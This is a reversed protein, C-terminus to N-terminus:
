NETFYAPKDLQIVGGGPMNWIFRKAELATFDLASGKGAARRSTFTNVTDTLLVIDFVHFPEM